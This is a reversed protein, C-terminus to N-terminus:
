QRGSIIPQGWSGPSHPGPDQSVDLEARIQAEKHNSSYLAKSPQQGTHPQHEHRDDQPPCSPAPTFLLGLGQWLCLCRCYLGMRESHKLRRRRVQTSPSPDAAPGSSILEGM